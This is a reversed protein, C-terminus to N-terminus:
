RIQVWETSVAPKLRGAQLGERIKTFVQLFFIWLWLRNPTISELASPKKWAAEAIDACTNQADEDFDPNAHRCFFHIEKPTFGWGM